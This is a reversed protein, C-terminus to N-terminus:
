HSPPPRNYLGQTGSMSEPLHCRWDGITTRYCTGSVNRVPSITCSKGTNDTDYTTGKNTYKSLPACQYSDVSGRIPIVPATTDIGTSGSDSFEIFRRTGGAQITLNEDLYRYDRTSQGEDGCQILAKIQEVNPQSKVPACKRPERTGFRDGGSAQAVQAASAPRPPTSAPRAAGTYASPARPAPAAVAQKAAPPPAARRTNDAKCLMGDDARGDMLVRYFYGSGAAYGNFTEGPHFPIVVGPQYFKQQGMPDCEVHQGVAYTEAHASPPCLAALVVALVAAFAAALIRTM